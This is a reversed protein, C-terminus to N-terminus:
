LGHPPLSNSAVSCCMHFILLCLFLAFLSRPLPHHSFMAHEFFSVSPSFITVSNLVPLLSAAQTCTHEAAEATDSEAVGHVTAWWVGRNMPNELCSYLLTNGNREGPFDAWGLFRVWTGQMAPVKKVLQAVLSSFTLNFM